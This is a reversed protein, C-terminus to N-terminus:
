VLGFKKLKRYLTKRDVNLSEAANGKHGEHLKLARPLYFREFEEVAKDLPLNDAVVSENGKGADQTSLHGSLDVEDTVLFREVENFLERVNGPWDYAMFRDIIEQPIEPLPGNNDSKKKLYHAILVTIDDKHWRLSPLEISLVFIRHFFDSRVMKKDMMKRLDRNTASILRVDAKKVINGGVPTYTFDNLVRLLKAQMEISLEGVEDLFLTGGEAQALYGNHDKDAGTFAGKKHGFFLSEFLHEPVSACNVPVFNNNYRDSMNFIARATVEKGCGTEGSILVPAESAASRLISEYVTKMMDSKGVLDGFQNKDELVIDIARKEKKVLTRWSMDRMTIVRAMCGQWTINIGMVDVPLITGDRKIVEVAYPQAYNTQTHKKTIERSAPTLLDFANTNVIEEKSYDFMDLLQQNYEVIVGDVHILIGEFSSDTLVQLRRQQELLTLQTQIRVLVEQEEFPKTIYDIGGVEFAKLKDFTQSLASIFIVPIGQTKKNLKLKECVEYGDMDPMKIDLLILDIAHKELVALARVGSPAPWVNYGENKLMETLLRINMPNDDVVLINGCKKCIEKMM